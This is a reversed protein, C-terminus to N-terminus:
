RELFPTVTFVFKANQRQIQRKTSWKKVRKNILVKSVPSVSLSVSLKKANYDQMQNDM